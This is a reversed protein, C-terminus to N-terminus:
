DRRSTLVCAKHSLLAQTVTHASGPNAGKPRHWVVFNDGQSGVMDQCFTELSNHVDGQVQGNATFADSSAPVFFTKGKIRHGDAIDATLWNVLLGVPAAYNAGGGGTSLGPATEVWAGELVGTEVNIIDGTGELQVQVDPPLNNCMHSFMTNLDDM